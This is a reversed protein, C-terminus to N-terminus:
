YAGEQGPYAVTELADQEDRERAWNRAQMLVAPVKVRRADSAQEAKRGAALAVAKTAYVHPHWWDDVMLRWCDRQRDYAVMSRDSKTFAVDAGCLYTRRAKPAAEGETECAPVRAPIDLMCLLMNRM